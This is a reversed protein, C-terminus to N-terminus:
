TLKEQWKKLKTLEEDVNKRLSSLSSRKPAIMYYGEVVDLSSGQLKESLGKTFGFFYLVTQFAIIFTPDTIRKLLGYAESISM